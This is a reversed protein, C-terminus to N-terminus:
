PRPQEAVLSVLRVLQDRDDSSLPELMGQANGIQAERLREVLSEGSESLALGVVRRDEVRRRRVILDRAELRDLASSVTSDPANLTQAVGRVTWSGPEALISLLGVDNAHLDAYASGALLSPELKFRRLLLNVAQALRSALAAEVPVTPTM